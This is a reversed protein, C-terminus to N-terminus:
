AASGVPLRAEVRTGGHPADGVAFFGGLSEVRDALGRLGSGRPDAGGRGDDTVALVVQDEQQGVEIAVREAGAHKAANTLAEACVFYLASEAAPSLRGVDARVDVALPARGGLEALAAPLGGAELSLPRIGALLERVESRAQATESRLTVLADALVPDDSTEVRALHGAVAELHRDAGDALETALARRQEDAVEVLRRRADALQVARAEAELRMRSSGVALRAAAVAGELLARDEAVTASHLLVAAARGGDTV